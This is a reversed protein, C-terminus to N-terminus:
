SWHEPLRDCSTRSQCQDEPRHRGPVPTPGHQIPNSEATVPRLRFNRWQQGNRSSDAVGDHAQSRLSAISSTVTSYESWPNMQATVM